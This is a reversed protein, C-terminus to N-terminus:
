QGPVLRSEEGEMEQLQQTQQCVPLRAQFLIESPAPQPLRSRVEKRLARLDQGRAEDEHYAGGLGPLIARPDVPSLTGFFSFPDQQLSVFGGVSPSMLFIGPETVPKGHGVLGQM